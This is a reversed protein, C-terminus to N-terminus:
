TRLVVSRGECTPCAECLVQQLSERTRKRTMQVLGLPSIDSINTKTSDHQLAKELTRLVQRRHEGNVMDIFDIIIIGGVNRLRIQRAIANAAEMNTRFLTDDVNQHGVFAGTNVDITTMAETQDFVVTGGSKLPVRRMLAREIEDEINYRDFIPRANDYWELKEEIAPMFTRVFTQLAEFTKKDDVQIKETQPKVLDRMARLPLPLDEHLLAGVKASAARTKVVEWVKDLYRKDESLSTVGEAATRVIYAGRPLPETITAQLVNKLREREAESEIRQSIGMFFGNEPMFVLYRSPLSLRMTLRVGKSGLADKIVQVVVVQGDNLRDRISQNPDDGEIESVHLFAAKELGIDVFAAEMGPLIRSVKGKYINGVLGKRGRREIYIEQLIGNDLLAVRKEYSTANILLIESM